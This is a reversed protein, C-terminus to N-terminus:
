AGATMARAIEIRLNERLDSVQRYVVIRKTKIDFPVDQPARAILITAKGMAHALGLEYFVNPNRGDVVAIVLRAQVVQRVVHPFVEGSIFEEDGRRASLGLDSCASVITDYVSQFDPHFPVLVFALKPDTRLDQETIGASRLFDSNQVHEPISTPDPQRSQSSLLLHNLDNWRRENASLKEQLRYSQDELSRRIADLEVRHKTLDYRTQRHQWLFAMVGALLATLSLALGLVTWFDASTLTM